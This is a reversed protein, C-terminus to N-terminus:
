APATRSAQVTTTLLRVCWQPDTLTPSHDAYRHHPNTVNSWIRALGAAQGPVPLPDADGSCLIVPVGARGLAELAIPWSTDGVLGNLLGSYTSWTHQVGARAVPVPLGPRYAVALWSAATRNRCM